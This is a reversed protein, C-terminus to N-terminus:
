CIANTRISGSNVGPLVTLGVLGSIRCSGNQQQFFCIGVTALKFPPNCDRKEELFEQWYKAISFSNETGEKAPFRGVDAPM